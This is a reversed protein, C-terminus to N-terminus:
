DKSDEPHMPKMMFVTKNLLVHQERLRRKMLNLGSTDTTRASRVCRFLTKLDSTANQVVQSLFLVTEAFILDLEIKELALRASRWANRM